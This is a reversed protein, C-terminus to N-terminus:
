GRSKAKTWQLCSEELLYERPCRPVLSIQIDNDKLNKPKPYSVPIDDTIQTYTLDFVWPLSHM